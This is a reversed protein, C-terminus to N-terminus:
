THMPQIPFMKIHRTSNSVEAGISKRRAPELKRSDEGYCFEVLKMGNKNGLINTLVKEAKHREGLEWVDPVSILDHDHLLKESKPGIGPLDALDLGKLLEREQDIPVILCKNPKVKNTAVKALFKNRAVGVTATCNTETYIDNRISEATIEALGYGYSRSTTNPFKEEIPLSPPFLAGYYCDNGPTTDTLDTQGCEPFMMEAYFEDCSVQEVRGNYRDAYSHVIDSAKSSVEEYGDFDYPLVIVNPCLKKAEGLFMGKEIGYKRAEYNCTACESTSYKSSQKPQLKHSQLISTSNRSHCIVVPKNQYQPYRRLVVSAFFSDMDIHFILSRLTKYPPSSSRIQNSKNPSSGEALPSPIQHRHAGAVAKTTRQKFNGIFSLRSNRFYDELFNPDTSVTRIEGCPDNNSRSTAKMTTNTTKKTDPPSTTNTSIHSEPSTCTASKVTNQRQLRSITSTLKNTTPVALGPLLFPIPSLLKRQEICALIFQPLVVPIAKKRKQYVNRKAVSLQSAIIHTVISTEYLEVAGGYRQIRRTLEDRDPNTYGNILCVVGRFFLCSSPTPEGDATTTTSAAGFELRQKWIKQQMYLRFNDGRSANDMSRRSGGGRGLVTTNTNNKTGNGNSAGHRDVAKSVVSRGLDEAEQQNTDNDYVLHNLELSSPLM